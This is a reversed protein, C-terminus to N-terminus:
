RAIKMEDHARCRWSRGHPKAHTDISLRWARSVAKVNVFLAVARDGFLTQVLQDPLRRGDGIALEVDLKETRAHRNKRERKASGKRVAGARCGSFGRASSHSGDRPDSGRARQACGCRRTLPTLPPKGPHPLAACERKTSCASSASVGRRLLLS